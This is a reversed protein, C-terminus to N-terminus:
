QNGSRSLSLNFLCRSVNALYLHFSNPFVVEWEFPYQLCSPMFLFPFSFSSSSLVANYVESLIHSLPNSKLFNWWLFLFCFIVNLIIKFFVYSFMCEKGMRYLLQQITLWLWALRCMTLSSFCVKVIVAPFSLFFFLCSVYELGIHIFVSHLKFLFRFEWPFSERGLAAHVSQTGGRCSLDLLFLDTWDTPQWREM